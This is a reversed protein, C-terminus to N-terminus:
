SKKIENYAKKITNDDATKIDINEKKLKEELTAFRKIYRNTEDTIDQEPDGGCIKVLTIADFLLEGCKEKKTVVEDILNHLGAKVEESTFNLGCEMGRKVTKSARMAAPLTLPVDGVYASATKMGKEAQKNKAWVKLASEPDPAKDNGFIHTHRSILKNCIGSLVDTKDYFGREEEFQIYFAAQLLLDGTEEIIKEDDDKNVADVLEYCEEILNKRITEMSQAKDWPCGNESRLIKVISLLDEFTFREKDKLDEGFVILVTSYNFLKEDRDIKYIPMLFKCNDVYLGVENEEGYIKSLKIKWESALFASDLDYIVLPYSFTSFTAIDYASVSTYGKGSLSFASVAQGTKSAGEFIEVEKTSKILEGACVDESVAGDVLYCVEGRKLYEKVEKVVNKKLTDFNKSKEYLFDLSIYKIGEDKLVQSSKTKETRLIVFDANKIAKFAGVSIDEANVGLGVVKLM